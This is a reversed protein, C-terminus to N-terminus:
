EAPEALTDKSSPGNALSQRLKCVIVRGNSKTEARNIRLKGFPQLNLERGDAIAEGLVALMAEAAPKAYKKKIGSRAVVLDVLEAKKMDAQGVVPTATSVVTPTVQEAEPVDGAGTELVKKATPMTKPKRTTTKRTPTKSPTTSTTM